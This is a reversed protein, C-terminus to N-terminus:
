QQYSHGSYNVKGVKHIAKISQHSTAHSDMAAKDTEILEGQDNHNKAPETKTEKKKIPHLTKIPSLFGKRPATKTPKKSLRGTLWLSKAVDELSEM